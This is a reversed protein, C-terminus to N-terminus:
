VAGLVMMVEFKCLAEAFRTPYATDTWVCTGCEKGKNRCTRCHYVIM